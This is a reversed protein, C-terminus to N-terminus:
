EEHVSFTQSNAHSLYCVSMFFDHLLKLPLIAEYYYSHAGFANASASQGGPTVSGAPTYVYGSANQFVTVRDLFGRNFNPNRCGIQANAFSQLSSAVAGTTTGAFATLVYHGSTAAGTFTLDMTVVDPQNAQNLVGTSGVAQQVVVTGSTAQTQTLMGYLDVGGVIFSAALSAVTITLTGGSAAVGTATGGPAYWPIYATRGDALPFVFTGSYPTSTSNGTWSGAAFTLVPQTGTTTLAYATTVNFTSVGPVNVGFENLDNTLPIGTIAGPELGQFAQFAPGNLKQQTVTGSATVYDAQNPLMSNCDLGYDLDQGESWVWGIDNEVELRLNNIM